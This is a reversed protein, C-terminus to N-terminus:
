AILTDAVAVSACHNSHSVPKVPYELVIDFRRFVSSIIIM